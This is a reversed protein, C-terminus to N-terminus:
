APWQRNRRTADVAPIDYGSTPSPCGDQSSCSDSVSPSKSRMHLRTAGTPCWALRFDEWGLCQWIREGGRHPGSKSTRGAGHRLLDGLRAGLTRSTQTRGACGIYVLEVGDVWRQELRQVSWPSIVNGLQSDRWRPRWDRPAFIAYVGPSDLSPVAPLRGEPVVDGLRIFGFFGNAEFERRWRADWEVPTPPPTTVLPRPPDLDAVISNLEAAMPSSSRRSFVEALSRYYWLTDERPANFRTWVEDGVVDLDHAISRANHLKDALSVRLASPSAQGLHAIYAKKRPAWDPKPRELTDSCEEVIGAVREGFRQRIEGLVERPNDGADEPGDHLLAAIAEDEDGGDELVLACVALLHSVYPVATGTRGQGGHLRAAYVLADEFRDGLM